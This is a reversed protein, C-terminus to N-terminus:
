AVLEVIRWIDYVWLAAVALGAYTEV